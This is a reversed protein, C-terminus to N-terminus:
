QTHWREDAAVLSAAPLPIAHSFSAIPFQVVDGFVASVRVSTSSVAEALTEALAALSHRVRVHAGSRGALVLRGNGRRLVVALLARALPVRGELAHRSRDDNCSLVAIEIIAGAREITRVRDYARRLLESRTDNSGQKLVICGGAGPGIEAPWDSGHEMVVLSFSEM